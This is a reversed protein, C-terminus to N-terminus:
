TLLWTNERCLVPYGSLRWIVYAFINKAHSDPWAYLFFHHLAINWWHLICTSFRLVKHINQIVFIDAGSTCILADSNNGGYKSTKQSRDIPLCVRPLMSDTQKTQFFFNFATLSSITTQGEISWSYSGIMSRTRDMEEYSFPMIEDTLERIM